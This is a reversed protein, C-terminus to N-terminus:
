FLLLVNQKDQAEEAEDDTHGEDAETTLSDFTLQSQETDRKMLPNDKVPLLGSSMSLECSLVTDLRQAGGRNTMLLERELEILAQEDAENEFSSDSHDVDPESKDDAARSQPLTVASPLQSIGQRTQPLLCGNETRPSERASPSMVREACGLTAATSKSTMWRGFSSPPRARIDDIVDSVISDDAYGCFSIDPQWEGNEKILTVATVATEEKDDATRKIYPTTAIQDPDLYLTFFGEMGLYRGNDVDQGGAIKQLENSLQATLGNNTNDESSDGQDFEESAPVPDESPIDTFTSTRQPPLQSNGASAKDLIRGACRPRGVWGKGSHIAFPTPREDCHTDMALGIQPPSPKRSSLSDEQVVGSSDGLTDLSTDPFLSLKIERKVNDPCSLVPPDYQNSGQDSSTNTNRSITSDRQVLWSEPNPLNRNIRSHSEEVSCEAEEVLYNRSEEIIEDTTADLETFRLASQVPQVPEADESVEDVKFLAVYSEHEEIEEATLLLEEDNEENKEECSSFTSNSRSDMDEVPFSLEPTRRNTKLQLKELYTADHETLQIEKPESNQMSDETQSTGTSVSCTKPPLPAQGPKRQRWEKLADQFANASQEEDFNGSLLSGGKRAEASSNRASLAPKGVEDDFTLIEANQQPTIKSSLKQGSFPKKPFLKRNVPSEDSEIQKKFQSVSHLSNNLPPKQKETQFPFFRHLKLAGKHHFKAFCSSCYNEGCEVCVLQPYRIECQGCVKEKVKPREAVSVPVSSSVRRHPEERQDKLVKIKTKGSTIKRNCNDKSKLVNQAHNTLNGTQGSRWHHPGAREREEKERSMTQRLQLLRQEMVDSDLELQATELRLERLNRAKLKVSTLTKNAPVVIFNNPNM